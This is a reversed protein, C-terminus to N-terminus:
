AHLQESERAPGATRAEGWLTFEVDGPRNSFRVNLLTRDASNAGNGSESNRDVTIRGEGGYFLPLDAGVRSLVALRACIMRLKSRARDLEVDFPPGDAITFRLRDDGAPACHIQGAAAALVLFRDVFLVGDFKKGRLLDRVLIAVDDHPTM